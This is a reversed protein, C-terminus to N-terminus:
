CEVCAEEKWGSVIDSKASIQWVISPSKTTWETEESVFINNGSYPQDCEKDKLRCSTIPCGIENTNSFLDKQGTLGTVKLDLNM